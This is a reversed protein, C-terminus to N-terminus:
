RLAPAVGPDPVAMYFVGSADTVSEAVTRSREVGSCTACLLSLAAGPLLSPQAAIQVAGSLPLAAGLAVAGVAGGLVDARDARALALTPDSAALAYHGGPAVQLTFQGSADTTAAAPIMTAVALDGIPAIRVRAAARPAGSADTITGTMAVPAPADLTAPASAADVAVVAFVTPATAIVARQAVAPVRVSPLVGDGAAVATQQIRGAASVATGATITGASGIAGVFTVRAGPAPTTGARVVAGGLDAIALGPAYRIAVPQALDLAAGTVELRPLGGAPPPAVTVAVAGGRHGRVSWAGSADTTAITTPTGAIVLAVRAGVVPSDDPARVTGSILDASPVTLDPTFSQWGAIRVPARSPDIPVILVHHPGGQVRVQFSGDNRTSAEVPLDPAADPEFRLAAAVPLGSGDVVHGNAVSGPQLVITGLAAPAGGSVQIVQEQPPAGGDGPVVRLRWPVSNAGPAKVNLTGDWAQCQSFDGAEFHIAYPGAEPVAFQVVAGDLDIAPPTSAVGDYVVQWRYTAIGLGNAVTGTATVLDGAVPEAHMPPFSFTVNTTCSPPADNGGGDVVTGGADSDQGVDGAGCGAVLALALWRARM